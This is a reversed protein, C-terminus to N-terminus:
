RGWEGGPNVTEEQEIGQIEFILQDDNITNETCSTFFSSTLLTAIAVIFLKKM